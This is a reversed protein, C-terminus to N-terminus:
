KVRVIEDEIKKVEEELKEKEPKNVKENKKPMEPIPTELTVKM